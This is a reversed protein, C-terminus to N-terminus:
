IRKLIKKQHLQSSYIIDSDNILNFNVVDKRLDIFLTNDLEKNKKEKLYQITFPFYGIIKVLGQKLLIRASAPNIPKIPKILEGKNNKVYVLM